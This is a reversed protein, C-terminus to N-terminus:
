CPVEVIHPSHTAKYREDCISANVYTVGGEIEIGPRHIHGFAHVRLEPLSKIREALDACGVHTDLHLEKMTTAYAMSDLDGNPRKVVDLRGMPPGHTILVQTDEPIQSWLAALRPGRDVNLAWDFFRPTYGSGFFRIGEVVAPRHDLYVCGAGEMMMRMMGPDKEAMWDHNGPVVVVAKFRPRLEKLWAAARSIESLDGRFTLDGCHVLIDGSPVNFGHQLHTDSIIVLRM